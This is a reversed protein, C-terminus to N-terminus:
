KPILRPVTRFKDMNSVVAVAVGGIVTLLAVYITAKTPDLKKPTVGKPKSTKAM